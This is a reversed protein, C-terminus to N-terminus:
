YFREPDVRNRLPRGEEYRRLNDVFLDVIRENERVSLAATHPSLIVNDLEWLPSDPPLPEVAFVDLAAGALRHQTLADVLAAEDFVPGRGVNVVICTEPLAEIVTRSVLGATEETGPLTCALIDARRALAPLVSVDHVEDVGPVEGPTRKVGLVYMGLSKALRAVELGVGGLGLVLITQGRLERMPYHAWRRARQDRRLKPVDKAFTLMGLLVFEALTTAHVGAASTVAVRALEERTLRARRVKEGEGAATGQVWRLKPCGRVARTLGDPVDGPIGFLVEARGLLDWWRDEDDPARRFLPDGRHDSPYRPPPLLSPEAHVAVGPVDRRIRQVLEPELPTAIVVDVPM